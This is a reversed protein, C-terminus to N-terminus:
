TSNDPHTLVYGHYGGCKVQVEARTRHSMRIVHGASEFWLRDGENSPQMHVHGDVHVFINELCLNNM